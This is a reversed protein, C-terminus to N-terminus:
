QENPSSEEPIWSGSDGIAKYNDGEAPLLLM